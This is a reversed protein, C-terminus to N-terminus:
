AVPEAQRAVRQMARRFREPEELFTFHASEEFWMWEKHPAELKEYYQRAVEPPTTYDHRGELLYVPVDLRPIEEFFDVAYLEDLLAELAFFPNAAVQWVDHWTYESTTVLELLAGLVSQPKQDHRAGGFRGVWKRQTMMERPTYPPLGLAELERLAKENGRRRAEELTFRYSLRDGELMNAVQGTGVYAHFREPSRAAARLGIVTGWSEGLLFVKEKDFRRRLRDSLEFIDEVFRDITMSEPPLAADFSKGTGRQEWYAVTFLDELGARKGFDEVRPFLPVGPGGYLILLLPLSADRSRLRVWQDVGGITMKELTDIKRM